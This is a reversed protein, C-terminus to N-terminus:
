LRWLMVGSEKFDEPNLISKVDMILGRFNLKEKLVKPDCDLYFQHSVCLIIADVDKILEWDVLNVQHGDSDIHKSAVPDHVLVDVDYSLLEEIVDFVRSNRIDVCNEKFTVGLIAVRCHKISTGLRILNKITNEAIFKGMNDNVRRGSLIIDPQYGLLQAKHALYYPDVGICHGGVLGPKFPLFNWKTSAAQLVETTDIGIRHFILAIENMLSINIDRQTNEIVKAAEAVKISPARYIGAKVVTGYVEAVIDLTEADQGSVIKITNMLLHKDDSPNIREPSYGVKFDVGCTLHSHKELVPVCDEETAGPYVTSEYVVIDGKKLHKGVITSADVLPFLDPQKSKTVPTPVAVIFFNAKDLDNPDATLHLHPNALQEKSIEHNRDYGEKLENVRAAKKDFAIVKFKESFAVALPLGVYGLGIIAIKRM